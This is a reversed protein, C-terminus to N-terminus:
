PHFHPKPCAVDYTYPQSIDVPFMLGDPYKLLFCLMFYFQWHRNFYSIGNIKIDFLPTRLCIAMGKKYFCSDRKIGHVPAYTEM